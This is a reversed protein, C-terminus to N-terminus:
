CWLTQTWGRFQWIICFMNYVVCKEEFNCTHLANACLQKSNSHLLSFIRLDCDWQTNAPLTGYINQTKVSNSGNSFMVSSQTWTWAIVGIKVLLASLLDAAVHWSGSSSCLPCENRQLFSSIQMFNCYNSLNNCYMLKEQRNDWQNCQTVFHDLQPRSKFRM